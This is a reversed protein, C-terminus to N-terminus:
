NKLASCGSMTTIRVVETPPLNKNRKILENLMRKTVIEFASSVNTKDQLAAPSGFDGSERISQEIPLEGLFPVNMDKSLNKAGSKGFIYYKSEPLENPTFYSMNEIIGLVPVKINEQRFMAIGKKAADLAVNQPTSVVVSGSLPLSQVISLHIDGTGPPLDIMLFDLDGWAADFIMQNLAKTAMPGRWIVAQDPKTFFGISLIKVGYNEVPKMKSKGEVNISLPRSGEVDLMTPISPGYIDADLVGVKFGMKSLSVSLNATLTSKGVGGKGSSIAIISKIGKIPNGKILNEKKLSKYEFNIKVKLEPNIEKHIALQILQDVKKRAQLTPNNIILDIVVEDGFININKIPDAEFFSKLKDNILLDKLLIFINEKKVKL